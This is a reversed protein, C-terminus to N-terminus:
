VKASDRMVALFSCFCIAATETRLITSTLSISKAGAQELIKEESETFGGEPGIFVAYNDSPNLTTKFLSESNGSLTASLLVSDNLGNLYEEFPAPALIEPLFLNRSQKCASIAVKRYRELLNKGKATKVTREFVAPMIRDAGLEAAKSILWDFRQGKAISVILSIKGNERPSATQKSLIELETSNKGTERVLGTASNGKGDFIQINDGKKIRFAALHKTESQDLFTTPNINEAFFLPM